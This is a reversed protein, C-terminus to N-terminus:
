TLHKPGPLSTLQAQYVTWIHTFTLDANISVVHLMWNSNQLADSYRVFQIHNTYSTFQMKLVKSWLWIRTLCNHTRQTGSKCHTGDYIRLRMSCTHCATRLSLCIGQQKKTVAWVYQWCSDSAARLCSDGTHDLIARVEERGGQGQLAAHTCWIAHPSCPWGMVFGLTDKWVHGAKIWAQQTWYCGRGKYESKQERIM